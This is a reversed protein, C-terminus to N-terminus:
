RTENRFRKYTYYKPRQDLRFHLWAIGMGSTSFWLSRTAQKKVQEVYTQLALKWTEMVIENDASRCFTALHGKHSNKQISKTITTSSPEDSKVSPKPAILTADKGLNTFVCAAGDKCSAFHEAFATADPRATAFEHLEPADVLVFEFTKANWQAATVPRTEFYFAAYPSQKLKQLFRAMTENDSLMTTAWEGITVAKQKSNPAATPGKVAQFRQFAAGKGRLALTGEEVLIFEM